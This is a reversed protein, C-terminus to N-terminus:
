FVSLSVQLLMGRGFVRTLMVSGGACTKRWRQYYPAFTKDDLVVPQFFCNQVSCFRPFRAISSVCSWNFVSGFHDADSQVFRQSAKATRDSERRRIAAVLLLSFHRRHEANRVSSEGAFDACDNGGSRGVKEVRTTREIEAAALGAKRRDCEGSERAGESYSSLSCV